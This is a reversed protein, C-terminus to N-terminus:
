RCGTRSAACAGTGCGPLWEWVPPGGCHAPAPVPCHGPHSSGSGCCGGSCQGSRPAARWASADAPGRRPGSRWRGPRHRHGRLPPASAPGPVVACVPPAPVQSRSGGSFPAPVPGPHPRAAACHLHRGSAPPCPPVVRLLRAPIRVPPLVPHRTRRRHRWRGRWPEPPEVCHPLASAAPASQRACGSATGASRRRAPWRRLRIREAPGPRRVAARSRRPLLAPRAPWQARHRISRFSFSIRRRWESLASRNGRRRDPRPPPERRPSSRGARRPLGGARRAPVPRFSRPRDSDAAGSGSSM